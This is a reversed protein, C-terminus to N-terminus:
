EALELDFYEVVEDEGIEDLIYSVGLYDIVEKLTFETLLDDGFEEKCDKENLRSLQFIEGADLNGLVVGEDVEVMLDMM